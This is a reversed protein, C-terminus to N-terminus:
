GMDVWVGKGMTQNQTAIFLSTDMMFEPSLVPSLNASHPLDEIMVESASHGGDELDWSIELVQPGGAQLRSCLAQM